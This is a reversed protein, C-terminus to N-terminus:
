PELAKPEDGFLVRSPYRRADGSLDRLNESIDKL